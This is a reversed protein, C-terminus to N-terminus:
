ASRIWSRKIGFNGFLLEDLDVEISLADGPSVLTKEFLIQRAIERVFYKLLLRWSTEEPNEFSALLPSPVTVLVDKFKICPVMIGEEIPDGLAFLHPCKLRAKLCAASLRDYISNSQELVPLLTAVIERPKPWLALECILDVFQEYDEDKELLGTHKTLEAAQVYRFAPHLDEWLLHRSWLGGLSPDLPAFLALDILALITAIHRESYEDFVGHHWAFLQLPTALGGLDLLRNLEDLQQSTGHEQIVTKETLRASTELLNDTTLRRTSNEPCQVSTAEQNTAITPFEDRSTPLSPDLNRDLYGFDFVVRLASNATPLLEVIQQGSETLLATLLHDVSKWGDVLGRIPFSKANGLYRSWNQSLPLQISHETGGPTRDRFLGQCVLRTLNAQSYLARTLFQGFPSGCVQHFHVLEHTLTAAAYSYKRSHGGKDPSVLCAMLEEMVRRELDPFSIFFGIPNFSGFTRIM